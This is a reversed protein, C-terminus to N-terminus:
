NVFRLALVAGDPRVLLETDVADDARAPNVPLGFQALAMRPVRAPVVYADSSREIEAVPVVPIFRQPTGASATTVPSVDGDPMARIAIAIVAITAALALPWALWRDVFRPGRTSRARKASARGIAKAIALDASAPPGTDALADKLGALRRDLEHTLAHTDM